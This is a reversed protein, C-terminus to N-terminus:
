KVPHISIVQVTTASHRWQLELDFIRTGFVREPDEAHYAPRPNYALMDCILQRLAPRQENELSQVAQDAEPLFQVQNVPEPADHAFAGRAEPISDAYPIYPKIDLVPTGDLFDGGGIHLRTGNVKLLNVVSLGLPNPRFNSRSAFVGIRENGGLRPPRVTAKWEGRASRHFLFLIWLHSFQEVGRLADPTNYPALLELEATASKVLGPQRPIAFKEGFCSHITGIPSLTFGNTSEEPM